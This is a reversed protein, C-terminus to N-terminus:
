KFREDDVTTHVLSSPDIDLEPGVTELASRFETLVRKWFDGMGGEPLMTFLENWDHTDVNFFPALLRWLDVSDRKLDDLTPEPSPHEMAFLAVGDGKIPPGKGNNLVDSM